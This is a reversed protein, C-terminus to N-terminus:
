TSRSNIARQSQDRLFGTRFPEAESSGIAMGLIERHGHTNVGVALTVAVSM